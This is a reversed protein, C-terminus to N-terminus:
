NYPEILYHNGDKIYDIVLASEGKKIEIGDRTIASILISTGDAKIEAQGISDSKVTLLVKCPKGLPNIAEDEQRIKMYFKAIPTTLLKAIFLSVIFGGLLLAANILITDSGIFDTAWLTLIWLPFALFSIFIMIPMHGINFFALVSSLGDGGVEVDGDLDLEVETELDIDLTDIDIVGLIVIIWYLMVFIMLITPLINVGSFCLDLFAQM